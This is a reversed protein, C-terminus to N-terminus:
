HLAATKSVGTEQLFIKATSDASTKIKDTLLRPFFGFTIMSLLLLAFPLGRWWNADKVGAWKEALPGHLISRIARLMYIGGIVLAGWAAAAVFWNTHRAYAGSWAGFLVLVEGSFNAFGPLGCGAFM